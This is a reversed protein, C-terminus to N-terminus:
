KFIELEALNSFGAQMCGLYSPRELQMKRAYLQHRNLTVKDGEKKLKSLETESLGHFSYTINAMYERSSLQAPTKPDYPIDYRCKVIITRKRGKRRQYEGTLEGSEGLYSYGSVYEGLGAPRGVKGWTMFSKNANKWNVIAM